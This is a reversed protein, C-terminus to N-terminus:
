PQAKPFGDAGNKVIKQMAQDIPIHVVGNQKDIWYYSNLEEEKEARLQALDAAPDIQLRPAPPEVARNRSVDGLTEPYGWILAGAAIVLIALSGAYTWAVPRLPWDTSEYAADPNVAVQQEADAM